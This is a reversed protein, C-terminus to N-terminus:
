KYNDLLQQGNAFNCAPYRYRNCSGSPQQGQGVEREREERRQMCLRSMRWVGLAMNEVRSSLSPAADPVGLRSSAVRAEDESDVWLTMVTSAEFAGDDEEVGGVLMPSLALTDDSEIFSPFVSDVGACSGEPRV